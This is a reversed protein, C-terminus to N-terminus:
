VEYRNDFISNIKKYSDRFKRILEAQKQAKPMIVIRDLSIISDFLRIVRGSDNDINTLAIDLYDVISERDAMTQFRLVTNVKKEGKLLSMMNTYYEVFKVYEGSIKEREGRKIRKDEYVRGLLGDLAEVSPLANEIVKNVPAPDNHIRFLYRVYRFGGTKISYKFNINALEM